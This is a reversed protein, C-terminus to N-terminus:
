PLREAVVLLRRSTHDFPKLSFGGFWATPRLGASRLMHDIETATYVRLRHQREIRQGDQGQWRHTVVNV